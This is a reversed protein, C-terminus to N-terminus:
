IMHSHDLGVQVNGSRESQHNSNGSYGQQYNSQYQSRSAPMAGPTYGGRPDGACRDKGYNARFNGYGAAHLPSEESRLANVCTIADTISTFNVFAIKKAPLVNIKEITGFQGLDENLREETVNEDINGIFVNRTAGRSISEMIDPSLPRSKGWGVKLRKGKVVFEGNALQSRQYFLNAGRPDIFTAFACKKEPLTKVNDILGGRISDCLDRVTLEDTFGGLYITRNGYNAMASPTGYMPGSGYDMQGMGSPPPGFGGAGMPAYRGDGGMAGTGYSNGAGFGSTRGSGYGGPPFTNGGMGYNNGGMGFGGAGSMTQNQHQMRGGRSKRGAVCRDKGYGLRFPQWQPDQTLTTVCKVAAEISAFHVFAIRKQPLVDVCDIAGFRSFAGQFWTETTREDVSGGVFVNRTAGNLVAQETQVSVPKSNGWGVMVKHGRIMPPNQSAKEFFAHAAEPELFTVFACKKPPLQHINDILGGVVHDLIDALSASEAIRGIYITRSDEEGESRVRKAQQEDQSFARKM